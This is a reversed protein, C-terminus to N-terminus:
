GTRAKRRTRDAISALQGRLLFTRVEGVLVFQNIDVVHDLSPQQLRLRQLLRHVVRLLLEGIRRVELGLKESGDHAREVRM